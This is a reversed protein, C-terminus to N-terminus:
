KTLCGDSYLDEMMASAKKFDDLRGIDIWDQDVKFHNIRGHSELKQSLLTPMDLAQGKPISKVLSPSLVYVGANIFYKHIPKEVIGSVQHEATTVVGFPIQYEYERVCMTAEGGHEDHHALLALFDIDTLLDGNMLFMPESIIDKPLLGLAGATGLPKDEHLYAIEVGWESGDGFHEVIKEPMYHTSIYFRYFGARIFRQLILELIPKNGLKLMPKPCSNTLPRLRTGFGGAMLCVANEFRPKRLLSYLFSVSLIRRQDDVIPIFLLQYQEMCSLLRVESWHRTAVKPNSQMVRTVPETLSVGKLLARRVDGDSVIGLLIDNEDAILLSRKGEIDLQHIASGLPTDPAVVIRKWDYSNTM